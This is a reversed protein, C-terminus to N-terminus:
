RHPRHGVGRRRDLISLTERGLRPELDALRPLGAAEQAHCDATPFWIVRGGSRLASAVAAPNIGGAPDNLALGGVIDLGTADAAARARGVTSEHHGKLVFGNFGADRYSRALEVDSLRREWIDPASHVHAYFM